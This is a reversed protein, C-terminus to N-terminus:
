CAPVELLAPLEALSRIIPAGVGELLGNRCVLMVNLGARRGGEVDDFVTDGVHLIHQPAVGLRRCAEAFIETAPKAYGVEASAIISDFSAALGLERCFYGLGCQWNSVIALKLGRAKLRAVVEPVEPFVELSGPGVIQWVREAHRAVGDELSGPLRVNLRRFVRETVVRRLRAQAVSDTPDLEFLGPEFVDYLVRHQWADSELGSERLYAMLMAGRGPGDRHYVLTNFFDFTIAAAEM